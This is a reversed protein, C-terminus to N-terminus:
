IGSGVDDTNFLRTSDPNSYLLLNSTDKSVGASDGGSCDFGGSGPSNGGGCTANWGNQSAEVISQLAPKKYKEPFFM